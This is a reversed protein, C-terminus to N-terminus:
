IVNFFGLLLIVLVVASVVTYIWDKRIAFAILSLSARAIPTLILVVLGFMIIGRSRLALLSRFIGGLTSLEDPEGKFASYEPVQAGHEILFLVAGILVIAAAASVGVRLLNGVMHEFTKDADAPQQQADNM